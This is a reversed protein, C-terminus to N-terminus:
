FRSSIDGFWQWPFAIQERAAQITQTCEGPSIIAKDLIIWPRLHVTLMSTGSVRYNGLFVVYLSKINIRDVHQAIKGAPCDGIVQGSFLTNDQMVMSPALVIFLGM